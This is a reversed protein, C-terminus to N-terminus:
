KLNFIIQSNEEFGLEKKLLNVIEDKEEGQMPELRLHVSKIPLLELFLKNQSIKGAAVLGRQTNQSFTQDFLFNGLCYFIPKGQYVETDQIVHPHSGIILDAGSDIWSHALKEQTQNHTTQYEEGWHPFIIVLANNKKQEKITESLEPTNALINVAIISIQQDKKSFIKVLDKKNQPDGIPNIGANSLTERTFDLASQGQNDTHNNALSTANINLWKLVEITQPPFKMILNYPNTDPMFENQVIPGELNLLALDKGQFFNPGLNEFAAKLDDHFQSYVARGFMADGAIIFTMEETTPTPTIIPSPSPNSTLTQSKLVLITLSIIGFGLILLLYKTLKTM